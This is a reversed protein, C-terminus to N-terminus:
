RSSEIRNSGASLLAEVEVAGVPRAFFYGQMRNFKLELCWKKQADTEVGEVVTQIGLTKALANIARLYRADGDDKISQVFTKDIKLVSFPHSQLQSLSSYGTGFDDLALKIGLASLGRLTEASHGSAKILASETVEFELWEPKIKYAVLIESVRAVFGKGSLQLASINIALSLQDILAPSRELWSQFQKCVTELVWDGIENIVGIDEALPIFELPGILGRTPHQWRILAEASVVTESKCDIQPQYYLVFEKKRVAGRLDRELEIREHIEEHVASSYYHAQNRGKEKSRYMAIDACKMLQVSDLACDPFSAVGISASINIEVGELQFPKSLEELIRKTLPALETQDDLNHVLVAFEDGGLRCLLDGGRVPGQLRRAVEILLQDGAGHGMTDNIDKFNDLDLMLLALFQKNRRARPIASSLEAEFVYRNALGTLADKEAMIRLQDQTQRLQREIKYREKAHMISRMLRTTTVEHKQIFDQAGTEICQIALKEDDENSLMVVAMSDQKSQNFLKLLDLGTMTPLQYDLLIIDFIQSQHYELGKEASSAETIRMDLGSKVLARRTNMRDVTDDDILLLNM